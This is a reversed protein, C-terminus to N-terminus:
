KHRPKFSRHIRSEDIHNQFESKGITEFGIRIKLTGVKVLESYVKVNVSTIQDYMITFRKGFANTYVFENEGFEVKWNIGKIILYCCYLFPVIFILSLERETVREPFFITLIFLSILGIDFLMPLIVFIRDIFIMNPKMVNRHQAKRILIEFLFYGIVLGAIGLLIRLDSTM